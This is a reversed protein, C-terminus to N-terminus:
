YSYFGPILSQSVVGSLDESHLTIVSGDSVIGTGFYSQFLGGGAPKNLTLSPSLCDAYAPAAATTLVAVVTLLQFRIKLLERSYMVVSQYSIM